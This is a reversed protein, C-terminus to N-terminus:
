VGGVSEERRVLIRQALFNEDFALSEGDDAHESVLALGEAVSFIGVVIDGDKRKGSRQANMRFILVGGQDGLDVVGFVHGLHDVFHAVIEAAHAATGGVFGVAEGDEGGIGENM